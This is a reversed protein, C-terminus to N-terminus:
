IGRKNQPFGRSVKFFVRNQLIIIIYNGQLGTDKSTYGLTNLKM